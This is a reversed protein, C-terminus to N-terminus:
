HDTAQPTDQKQYQVAPHSARALCPPPPLFLPSHQATLPIDRRYNAKAQMGGTDLRFPPVLAQSSQHTSCLDNQTWSYTETMGTGRPLLLM